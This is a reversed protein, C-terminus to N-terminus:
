ESKSRPPVVSNSRGSLRTVLFRLGKIIAWGLLVIALLSFTIKGRVERYSSGLFNQFWESNCYVVWILIVPILIIAWIQFYIKKQNKKEIKESQLEPYTNKTRHLEFM